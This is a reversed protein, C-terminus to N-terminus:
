RREAITFTLPYPSSETAPLQHQERIKWHDSNLEPFWTDGEFAADIETYILRDALPLTAAYLQAGGIIIVEDHAALQTIMSTNAVWEINKETPHPHRSIIINRRKPLPSQGLSEFTKRGMIITKDLTHQRFWQMDAGIRPWPLQNHNGILRNRDMAWILTIV